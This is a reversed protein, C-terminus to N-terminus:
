KKKNLTINIKIKNYKLSILPLLDEYKSMDGITPINITCDKDINYNIFELKYESLEPKYELLLQHKYESLLQNNM